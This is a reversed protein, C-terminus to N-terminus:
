GAACVCDFVAVLCALHALRCAALTTIGRRGILTATCDNDIRSASGGAALTRAHRAELEKIVAPLLAESRSATEGGGKVPTIPTHFFVM